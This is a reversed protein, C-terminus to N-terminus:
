GSGTPAGSPRVPEIPPVGHPSVMVAAMRVPRDSRNRWAHRTGQQVVCDGPHLDVSGDDLELTLDGELIMVFDITETRHFGHDLQAMPQAELYKRVVEDPPLELM